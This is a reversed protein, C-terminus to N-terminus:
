IPLCYEQPWWIPLHEPRILLFLTGSLIYGDKAFYIGTPDNPMAGVVTYVENFNPEPPPPFSPVRSVGEPLPLARVKFPILDILNSMEQGGRSLQKFM